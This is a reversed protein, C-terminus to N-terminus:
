YSFRRLVLQRVHVLVDAKHTAFAHRRPRSIALSRAVERAGAGRTRIGSEQLAHQTIRVETLGCAFWIARGATYGCRRIGSGTAVGSFM